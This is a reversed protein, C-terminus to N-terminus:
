NMGRETARWMRLFVGATHIMELSKLCHRDFSSFLSFRWLVRKIYKYGSLNIYKYGSLEERGFILIKTYSVPFFPETWFLEKVFTLNVPEWYKLMRFQPSESNVFYSVCKKKSPYSNVSLWAATSVILGSQLKSFLTVYWKSSFFVLKPQKQLFM